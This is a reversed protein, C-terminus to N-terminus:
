HKGGSPSNTINETQNNLDAIQDEAYNQAGKISSLEQIRGNNIGIVADSVSSFTQNLTELTRRFQFGASLAYEDPDNQRGYWDQNPALEDRFDAGIALAQAAIGNLRGMFDRLVAPDGEFTPGIM